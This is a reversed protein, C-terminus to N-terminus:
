TAVALKPAKLKYLGAGVKEIVGEACMRSVRNYVSNGYRRALQETKIVTGFAAQAFAEEVGRAVDGRKRYRRRVVAAPTARATPTMAVGTAARELAKEATALEERLRAVKKAYEVVDQVNIKGM